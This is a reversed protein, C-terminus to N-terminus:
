KPEEDKRQALDMKLDNLKASIEDMMGLRMETLYKRFDELDAGSVDDSFSKKLRETIEATLTRGSEKRAKELQKQLQPEIRFRLHTRPEQPMQDGKLGRVIVCALEPCLFNETPYLYNKGVAPRCPILLFM